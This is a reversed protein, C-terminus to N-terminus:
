RADALASHLDDVTPSHQEGGATRYLRCALGIPDDPRALPDHGNVMITPSQEDKIEELQRHIM